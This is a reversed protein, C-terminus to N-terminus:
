PAVVPYPLPTCNLTSPAFMPESIVEAGYEAAITLNEDSGGNDVVILRYSATVTDLYSQVTRRLLEPRKYSVIVTAILPSM